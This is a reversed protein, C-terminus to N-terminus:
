AVLASHECALAAMWLAPVRDVIRFGELDGPTPLNRVVNGDGNVLALREGHANGGGRLRCRARSVVQLRAPCNPDDSGILSAFHPTIDVRFKSPANLGVLDEDTLRIITALEDASNLRHALRGM